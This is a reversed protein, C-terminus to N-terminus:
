LLVNHLFTNRRRRHWLSHRFVLCPSSEVEKRDGHSGRMAIASDLDGICLIYVYLLYFDDHRGEWNLHTLLGIISM